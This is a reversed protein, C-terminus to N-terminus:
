RPRLLYPVQYLGKAVQAISAWAPLLDRSLLALGVRGGGGGVVFKTVNWYSPLLVKGNGCTLAGRKAAAAAARRFSGTAGGGSSRRRRGGGGGSNDVEGSAAYTLLLPPEQDVQVARPPPPTILRGAKDTGTHTGQQGFTCSTQTVCHVAGTGSGYKLVWAM